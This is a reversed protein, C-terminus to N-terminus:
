GSGDGAVGTPSRFLGVSRMALVVEDRENRAELALVVVSRGAVRRSPRASVVEARVRIRDGPRVPAPWRIEDVGPSGESGSGALLGDVLQRMVRAATHWGSAVLGGFPGTSAAVPDVHFPQPDFQEAFAVIEEASFSFVGLDFEQGATLDSLRRMSPGYAVVEGSTAWRWPSAGASPTARDRLGAARAGALREAQRALGTPQRRHRSHGKRPACRSVARRRM